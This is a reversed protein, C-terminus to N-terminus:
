NGILMFAGWYYPEPYKAMLQLQAQKFSKQKGSGKLWNSFFSTMLQQTGADDVKWLSMIIAEAGAVQLARQLGYVGEGAKIEGLGTECASLILLDTGSLDLNMAEYATLIGNDNNQLDSTKEGDVTAGGGALILGSRLLPNTAANDDSIGIAADKLFYGHTAIHVLSQGKINKVTTESALKQTFLNVQYGGTKLMKSIAEVEVKTGPLATVANGGYDPFGILTANKKVPRPKRAKISVLDKSNGLLIVDMSKILYDSGPKRLTYINIQNYVGDPTLYVVKKGGLEREIPEWYIGYSNKDEIKLNIANRYFKAARTEMNIGNPLMVLKPQDQNKVIVLAVYKVDETFTQDFGTIRVVEVLAETDTLQSKVQAYTIPKVTFSQSFEASRSSLSRELANASREISDVNIKEAKLEERTYAYLQALTEKQDLWTVYDAILKQDKSKLIASKVKSTSNLLLAKTALQYEFLDVLVTPNELSAEISFNDYRQFRQALVDWFKTKEAESMPPFYNNIFELTQYMVEKYIIMSKSWLKMKWYLIAQDERTEVYDPHAKGLIQERLALAKDLQKEAEPYRAQMRYFNGLDNMVRAYAPNVEGFNSKFIAAAKKLIEEVKEPKGMVLYLGAQNTLMSAYDPNNKGLRREMNLYIKEAETYKKGRQYLLALNSLFRLQNKSKLNQLGEVIAIADTLIKEAAPLRGLEELLLAENNMVTAMQMSQQLNNSVLIKRANEFDQEALSYKALRFNLVGTNNLSAAVSPSNPGFKVKRAELAERSVTEAQTFRGMTSYLLGQSSLAKIYGIEDTLGAQEYLSRASAFRGEAMLFRRRAFLVEGTELNLRAREAETLENNNVTSNFTGMMTTVKAAAEGKEKTDFIGSNDTTLIAYDFDSSDFEARSKELDKMGLGFIDSRNEKTNLSKGVSKASEKLTKLIQGQAGFGSLILLVLLLRM